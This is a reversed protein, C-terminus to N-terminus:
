QEKMINNLSDIQNQYKKLGNLEYEVSPILDDNPYKLLFLNYKEIADSYANLYNNSIYAIMFLSNKSEATTPYNNIVKNFEEIAVDYEKIDNLYIEAIQFQSKVSYENNPFKSIIENFLTISERLKKQHLMDTANDWINKPLNNNCSFLIFIIIIKIYKKM